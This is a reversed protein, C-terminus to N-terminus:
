FSVKQYNIVRMYSFDTYVETFASLINILNIGFQYRQEDTELVELSDRKTFIFDLGIKLETKFRYLLNLYVEHANPDLNSGLNRNEYTYGSPYSRFVGYTKSTDAYSFKLAFEGARDIRPINIGIMYNISNDYSDVTESFDDFAVESILEINRLGPFRLKLDIDSIKQISRSGTYNDSINTDDDEYVFFFNGLVRGFSPDSVTDGGSLISQGLGFEIQNIPLFNLKLATFKTNPYGSRNKDLVGFLFNYKLLGFSPIQFPRPNKLSILPFKKLNGLPKANDSLLFNGRDFFGWRISDRGIKLETNVYTGKLYLKHLDFDFNDSKESDNYMIWSISPEFYLNLYSYIDLRHGSYIFFNHGDFLDRGENYATFSDPTEETIFNYGFTITEPATLELGYRKYPHTNYEMIDKKYREVLKSLSLYFYYYDEREAYRSTVISEGILRAIEHRTHPKIGDIEYPLIGFGRVFDFEHEVNANHVDGSSLLAAHAHFCFLLFVITAINLILSQCSTKCM